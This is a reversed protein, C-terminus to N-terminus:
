SMDHMTRPLESIIAMKLPTSSGQNLSIEKTVAMGFMGRKLWRIDLFSLTKKPYAAEM